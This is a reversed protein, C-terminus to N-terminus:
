VGVLCRAAAEVDRVSMLTQGVLVARVGCDKLRQVDDRTRIGSEAVLVAGSPALPALRETTVLDVAFTHLDRNNIGILDAGAEAAAEMEHEDHVEVLADMGLSRCASMLERLLPAELCAVILLCADAGIARAETVQVPDLIFDKRLLPLDVEGRIRSLFVPDGQFFPRDTLVSICTAGARQYARAIAIPDFDARIIGASPSAKKVEAILAVTPSAALARRFGRTPPQQSAARELACRTGESLAAIEQRKVACIRALIDPM